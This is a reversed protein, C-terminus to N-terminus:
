RSRRRPAHGQRAISLLVGTMFLTVVLSTGGFSIFPLPIGKTPLRGTVVGINIAAQLSILLTIGFAMLRGGADHARGSIRLGCLMFIVFLAVVGVSAVIGLEEGIIAFIFDTHAEPLYFQKQLSEGLGVGSAGGVVFAYLANMLQFAEDQAYLEPHQFSMIRGMREPNRAIMVAIGGAGLLGVPLLYFFPAGAVFMMLGGTGGILVTAGFDTEPLILILLSGLIAGPILIGGVLGTRKRRKTGYWLALANIAAFKALESPQFTFGSFLRVWRRSGNIKQGLGPVYVLALLVLTVGLVPWALKMWFHYDTKAGIVAALLGILLWASQRQTFYYPNGTLKEAQPGSTSELMVLGFLVLLAVVLILIVSARM